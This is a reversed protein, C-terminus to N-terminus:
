LGLLRRETANQDVGDLRWETTFFDWFLKERDGFFLEYHTVENVAYDHSQMEGRKFAEGEIKGLRGRM